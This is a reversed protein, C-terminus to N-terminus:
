SEAPPHQAKNNSPKRFIDATLAGMIMGYVTSRWPSSAILCQGHCGFYHYYAYGAIAGIGLGILITKYKSWYRM